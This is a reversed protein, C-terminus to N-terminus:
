KDLQSKVQAEEETQSGQEIENINEKATLMILFNNVKWEM